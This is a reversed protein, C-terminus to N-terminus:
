KAPPFYYTKVKFTGERDLIGGVLRVQRQQGTEDKITVLPASFLRYGKKQTKPEGLDM